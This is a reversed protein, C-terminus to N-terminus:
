IRSEPFRRAAQDSFVKHFHHYHPPVIQDWTHKQKDQTREAIQQSFTTKGLRMFLEEGPELLPATPPLEVELGAVHSSPTATVLAAAPTCILVNQKITGEM